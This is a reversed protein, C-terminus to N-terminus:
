AGVQPCRMSITGNQIGDHVTPVDDGEAQVTPAYLLPLYHDATPVAMTGLPHDLALPRGQPRGRVTM